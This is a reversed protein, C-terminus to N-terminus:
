SSCLLMIGFFIQPIERYAVFSFKSFNMFFRSIEFFDIRSQILQSSDVGILLGHAAEIM